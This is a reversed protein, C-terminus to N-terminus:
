PTLDLCVFYGIDAPGFNDIGYHGPTTSSFKWLEGEFHQNNPNADGDKHVYAAIIRDGTECGPHPTVQVQVQYIRPGAVGTAGTTGTTGTEGQPGPTLEITDIQSQLILLLLWYTM